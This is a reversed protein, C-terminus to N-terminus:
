IEAPPRGFDVAARVQSPAADVLQRDPRAGLADNVTSFAMRLAVFVTAGLIQADDLGAARLRDVDAQTTANPDAAVRTAWASLAAEREPLEDTEGGIAAAATEADSLEALKGGWALACYSDCRATAAAVVLLAIERDSLGSDALAAARVGLYGRYLEPRWSWLRTLNMVYGRSSVDDGYLARVADDQAPESLYM